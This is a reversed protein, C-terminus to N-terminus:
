RIDSSGGVQPSWTDPLVQVRPSRIAVIVMAIVGFILSVPVLLDAMVGGSPELINANNLFHVLIPVFLSGTVRRIAYATLGFLFTQGIQQFTESIQDATAGLLGLSHILGFLGATVLAVWIEALRTRVLFVGVGRFILEESVAAQLASLIVLFILLGSVDAVKGVFTSYVVALIPILVLVLPLTGRVREREFLVPRLWGFAGLIPVVVLLTVGLMVLLMIMQHTQTMGPGFIAAFVMPIILTLILSLGITVPAVMWLRPRLRYPM